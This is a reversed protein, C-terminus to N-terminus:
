ASLVAMVIKERHGMKKVGLEKLTARLEDPRAASERLV